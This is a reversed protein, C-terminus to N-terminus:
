RAPVQHYGHQEMCEVYGTERDLRVSVGFTSLPDDPSRRETLDRCENDQSAIEAKSAGPKTWIMGGSCAGVALAFGIPALFLRRM